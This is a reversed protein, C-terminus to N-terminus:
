LTTPIDYASEELGHRVLGSRELGLVKEVQGTPHTM